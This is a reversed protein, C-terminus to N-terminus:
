HGLGVPERPRKRLRFGHFSFFLGESGDGEAGFVLFILVRLDALVGRKLYFFYCGHGLGEQLTRSQVLQSVTLENPATAYFLQNAELM